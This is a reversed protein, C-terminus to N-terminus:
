LDACTGILSLFHGACLTFEALPNIEIIRAQLGTYKGSMVLVTM